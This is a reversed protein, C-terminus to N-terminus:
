FSRIFRAIERAKAYSERVRSHTYELIRPDLFGSISLLRQVHLPASNESWPM